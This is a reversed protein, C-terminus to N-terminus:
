VKFAWSYVPFAEPSEFMVAEFTTPVTVLAYTAPDTVAAYWGFMVDTWVRFACSYVPFAEPSELRLADFRAKPTTLEASMSPFVSELM